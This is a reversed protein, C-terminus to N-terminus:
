KWNNFYECDVSGDGNNLRRLVEMYAEQIGGLDRRFRDKDLKEQTIADWLRCTDPSIEDALIIEGAFRGFELKFDILELGVKLLYSKLIENINLSMSAIMDLEESTALKLALVHYENIMPDGLEDNKYCYELVTSSLKTGESLGLRKCLSGAARNRVIVEIPIIKVSKVLTERDSLQKVFHTKIGEKELFKFFHNSIINNAIGKQEIKGRKKGNFATADDKYEIVVLDDKDTAYVKKAKGEYM